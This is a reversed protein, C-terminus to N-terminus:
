NEYFTKAIKYDIEHSKKLVAITIFNENLKKNKPILYKNRTQLVIKPHWNFMKIYDM